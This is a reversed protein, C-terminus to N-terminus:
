VIGCLVLILWWCRSDNKDMRCGNTSDPLYDSIGRVRLGAKINYFTRVRWYIFLPPKLWLFRPNDPLTHNIRLPLNYQCVLDSNFSWLIQPFNGTFSVTSVKTVDVQKDSSQRSILRSIFISRVKLLSKRVSDAALYLCWICTFISCQELPLSLQRFLFRFWGKQKM